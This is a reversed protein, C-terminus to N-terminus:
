ILKQLLPIIVRQETVNAGDWLMFHHSISYIFNLSETLIIFQLTVRFGALLFLIGKNMGKTLVSSM